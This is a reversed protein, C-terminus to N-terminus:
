LEEYSALSEQRMELTSIVVEKFNAPAPFPHSTQMLIAENPEQKQSSPGTPLSTQSPTSTHDQQM